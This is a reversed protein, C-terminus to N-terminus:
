RKQPVTRLGNGPDKPDELASDGGTGGNATVLEDQAHAWAPCLLAALLLYRLAM